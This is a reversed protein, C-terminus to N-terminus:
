VETTVKKRSSKKSKTEDTSDSSKYRHFRPKHRCAGHIENCSNILSEPNEKSAKFIELRERNCLACNKTGFTKVTSIPNGEWIVSCVIHNRQLTPTVQEFNM